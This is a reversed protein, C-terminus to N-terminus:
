GVNITQLCLVTSLLFLLAPGWVGCSVRMVRSGATIPPFGHMRPIRTVTPVTTPSTAAPWARRFEGRTDRAALRPCRRPATRRRKARRPLRLEVPRATFNTTSMFRDGFQTARIVRSPNSNTWSRRQWRASSSIQGSGALMAVDHNRVIQIERSERRLSRGPGLRTAFGHLSREDSVATLRTAVAISAKRASM